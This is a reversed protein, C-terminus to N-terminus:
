SSDDNPIQPQYPGVSFSKIGGVGSTNYFTKKPVVCSQPFIHLTKIQAEKFSKGQGLGAVWSHKYPYKGSGPTTDDTVIRRESFGLRREAISLGINRRELVDRWLVSCQVSQFSLWITKESSTLRPLGFLNKRLSYYHTNTLRQVSPGWGQKEKEKSLNDVLHTSIGFSTKDGFSKRQICIESIANLFPKSNWSPVLWVQWFYFASDTM